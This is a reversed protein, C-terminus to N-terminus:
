PASSFKRPSWLLLGLIYTPEMTTAGFHVHVGYDAFTHRGWLLWFIYTCGMTLLHIAAGYYGPFTRPSWLLTAQLPFTCPQCRRGRMIIWMPLGLQRNGNHLLFTCSLSFVVSVSACGRGENATLPQLMLSEGGGPNDFRIRECCSGLGSARVCHASLM